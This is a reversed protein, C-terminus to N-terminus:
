EFSSFVCERLNIVLIYVHVKLIYYKHRLPEDNLLNLMLKQINEKVNSLKSCTSESSLEYYDCSLNKEHYASKRM